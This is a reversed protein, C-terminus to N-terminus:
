TGLGGMGGNERSVGKMPGIYAGNSVVVGNLLVKMDKMLASRGGYYCQLIATTAGMYADAPVGTMPRMADRTGFPRNQANQLAWDILKSTRTAFVDTKSCYM